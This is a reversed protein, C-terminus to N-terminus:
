IMSECAQKDLSHLARWLISLAVTASSSARQVSRPHRARAAAYPSVRVHAVASVEPPISAASYAATLIDLARHM